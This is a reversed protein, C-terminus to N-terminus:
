IEFTLDKDALSCSVIKDTILDNVKIRNSLTLITNTKIRIM